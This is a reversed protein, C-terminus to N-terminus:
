GTTLTRQNGKMAARDTDTGIDPSAYSFMCVNWHRDGGDSQHNM